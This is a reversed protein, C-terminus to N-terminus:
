GTVFINSISTTLEARSVANVSKHVITDDCNRRDADLNESSTQDYDYSTTGFVSTIEREIRM